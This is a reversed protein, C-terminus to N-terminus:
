RVGTFVSPDIPPKFIRSDIRCFLFVLRSSSRLLRFASFSKRLFIASSMFPKSVLPAAEGTSNRLCFCFVM